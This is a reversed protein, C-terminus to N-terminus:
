KLSGNARVSEIEDDTLLLEDVEFQRKAKFPIRRIPCSDLDCSECYNKGCPDFHFHFEIKFPIQKILEKELQLDLKHAQEVTWFEPMVIHADVHMENGFRQVRLHHLHVLGIVGSNRAHNVAKTIMDLHEPSASDLLGGLSSQLVEKASKMLWIGALFALVWDLFYLRTIMVVGIGAVLAFSTVADSMLHKGDARLAESHFKKGVSLLYFGTAGNVLITALLLLSGLGLEAAQNKHLISQVVEVFIGVSGFAMLGGEFSASLYEAKGHGYPHERDAPELAFIQSWLLFSAGLVNVISELADSFIASSHTLFYAAFKVVFLAVSVFLALISFRVRPESLYKKLPM